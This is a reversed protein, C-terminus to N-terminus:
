RRRRTTFRRKKPKTTRRKTKRNGGTYNAMNYEMKYLGNYLEGNGKFGLKTYFPVATDVSGLKIMRVRNKSAIEKIIKILRQGIGKYRYNTCILSIYLWITKGDHGYRYEALLFGLVVRNAGVTKYFAIIADAKALSSGAYFDSIDTCMTFPNPSDNESRALIAVLRAKEKNIDPTNYVEPLILRKNLFIELIIDPTSFNIANRIGYRRYSEHNILQAANNRTAQNARSALTNFPEPFNSENKAVLQLVTDGDDNKLNVNPNYELLKNILTTRTEYDIPKKVVYMLATTGLSTQKDIVEPNALLDIFTLIKEKTFSPSIIAMMLATQGYVNARNNHEKDKLLRKIVDVDNLYTLGMILATDGEANVITIDAGKDLLYNTIAPKEKMITYILLTNGFESTPDTYNIIKLQVEEPYKSLEADIDSITKGQGIM